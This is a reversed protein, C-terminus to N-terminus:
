EMDGREVAEMYRADMDKDQTLGSSVEGKVHKGIHFKEGVKADSVESTTAQASSQTDGFPKRSEVEQPKRNSILNTFVERGKSIETTVRLRLGDGIVYDYAIKNGHAIREGKAIILM